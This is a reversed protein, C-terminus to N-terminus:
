VWFSIERKPYRKSRNIKLSTVIDKQFNIRTHLVLKNKSTIVIRFENAFLQEHGTKNMGIAVGPLGPSTGRNQYTINGVM